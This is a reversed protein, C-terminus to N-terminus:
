FDSNSRAAVADYIPNGDPGVPAGAGDLPEVCATLGDGVEAPHVYQIQQASDNGDVDGYAVATFCLDCSGCGAVSASTYSAYSYFVQGEPEWGLLHFAAESDADWPMKITGPTGPYKDWDPFPLGTDVYVDLEAQASQQARALGALNAYAESRRSRAQYRIFNPIAVAALLGMIAVVVMLEVLTFGHRRKTRRRLM